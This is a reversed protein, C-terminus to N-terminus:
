PQSTARLPHDAPVDDSGTLDIAGPQALYGVGVDVVKLVPDHRLQLVGKVGELSALDLIELSPNQEVILDGRVDQLNPMAVQAIALNAAIELQNVDELRPLYVGTAMANSVIRLKDVGRLGELHIVDLDFTPGITLTGTVTELERLVGFDLVAAGRITVDGEVTECRGLETLADQGSITLPGKCAPEAPAAAPGSKGACAALAVAIALRKM